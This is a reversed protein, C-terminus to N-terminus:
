TQLVHTQIDVNDNTYGPQDQVPIKICMRSPIGNPFKQAHCSGLATTRGTLKTGHRAGATSGTATPDAKPRDPGDTGTSWRHVTETTRTWPPGVGKDRQHTPGAQRHRRGKSVDAFAKEKSFIISLQMM